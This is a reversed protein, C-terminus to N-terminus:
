YTLPAVNPKRVESLDHPNGGMKPVILIPILVQLRFLALQSVLRCLVSYIVVLELLLGFAFRDCNSVTSGLMTLYHQFGLFIAEYWPPNDLIRYRM